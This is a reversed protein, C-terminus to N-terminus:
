ATARFPVEETIACACESGRLLVCVCFFSAEANTLFKCGCNVTIFVGVGDELMKGRWRAWGEANWRMFWGYCRPMLLLVWLPHNGTPLLQRSSRKAGSLGLWSLGSETVAFWLTVIKWVGALSWKGTPRPPLESETNHPNHHYMLGIQTSRAFCSILLGYTLNDNPDTQTKIVDAKTWHTKAFSNFATCHKPKLVNSMGTCVVTMLPPM